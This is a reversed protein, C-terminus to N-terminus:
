TDRLCGAARDDAEKLVEGREELAGVPPHCGKCLAPLRNLPNKTSEFLACIFLELHALNERSIAASETARSKARIEIIPDEVEM